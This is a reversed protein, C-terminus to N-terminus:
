CTRIGIEISIKPRARIPKSGSDNEATSGVITEWTASFGNCGDYGSLETETNFLLRQPEEPQAPTGGIGKLQWNTGVLKEPSPPEPISLRGGRLLLLQQHGHSPLANFLISVLGISTLNSLHM